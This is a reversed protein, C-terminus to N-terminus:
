IRGSKSRGICDTRGVGELLVDGGFRAAANLNQDLLLDGRAEVHHLAADAVAERLPALAEDADAPPAEAISMPPVQFGHVVALPEGTALGSEM